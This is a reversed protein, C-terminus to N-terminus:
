FKEFGNYDVYEVRNFNIDREFNTKSSISKDKNKQFSVKLAIGNENKCLLDFTKTKNNIFDIYLDNVSIKNKKCLHTISEGSVGKLRIYDGYVKNGNSDEGQLKHHYCKKGLFQSEISKVNKAKKGDYTFKLDNGFNGMDEGVLNRGYKNYFLYTM